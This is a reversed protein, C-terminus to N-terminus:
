GEFRAKLRLYEARDAEERQKLFEEDRRRVSDEYRKTLRMAEEDDILGMNRARNWSNALWNEAGERSVCSVTGPDPSDILVFTDDEFLLAVYCSYHGSDGIIRKLVKGEAQWSDIPICKM